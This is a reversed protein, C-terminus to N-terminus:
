EYVPSFDNTVLCKEEESDKRRRRCALPPSSIEVVAPLDCSDRDDIELHTWWSIGLFLTVIIHRAISVRDWDPTHSILKKPPNKERQTIMVRHNDNFVKKKKEKNFLLLLFHWHDTSIIINTRTRMCIFCTSLENRDLLQLWHNKDIMPHKTIFYWWSAPTPTETLHGCKRTM